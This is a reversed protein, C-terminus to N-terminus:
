KIEARGPAEQFTKGTRDAFLIKPCMRCHQEHQALQWASVHSMLRTIITPHIAWYAWWYAYRRVLRMGIECHTM